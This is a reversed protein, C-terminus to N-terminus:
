SPSHGTTAPGCSAHTDGVRRRRQPLHPRAADVAGRHGYQNCTLPLPSAPHRGTTPAGTNASGELGALGPRDRPHFRAVPTPPPPLEEHHAAVMPSLTVFDEAGEELWWNAEEDSKSAELAQRYAAEENYDLPIIGTVV